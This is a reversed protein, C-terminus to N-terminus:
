RAPEAMLGFVVLFALVALFALAVAYHLGYLRNLRRLASM